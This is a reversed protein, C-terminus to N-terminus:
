ALGSSIQLQSRTKSENTVMAVKRCLVLLPVYRPCRRTIGSSEVLTDPVHIKFMGSEATMDADKSIRTRLM